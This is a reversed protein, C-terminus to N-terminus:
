PNREARDWSRVRHKWFKPAPVATTQATRESQIGDFRRARIMREVQDALRVANLGDSGDVRPRSGTRIATVFDLLEATLADIAPPEHKEVRLIEGFLRDRVSAPQARDVNSWDINGPRFGDPPRVITSQRTAFDVMAYGNEGWLRLRRAPQYSARSASLDAVSGDEFEVRAQAVDELNTFLALGIASVSRVPAKVLSLVLDIDHIMLDLVVSIDTSRFTYTGNRDAALYRPRLRAEVLTQFGPNFREIHGVQLIAGRRQALSVLAEADAPTQALPKEILTPIGLDLFPEAVARHATTPVAISVAQVLPLLDAPDTFSAAGLPEGVQRAQEWRSDVVGVLQVDPLGALIRAHHRGLHGVGVVGVRLRDM